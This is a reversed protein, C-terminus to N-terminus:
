DHSDAERQVPFANMYYSFQRYLDERRIGFQGELDYRVKGARGRPHTAIYHEIAARSAPDLGIGALEHIEALIALDNAMFDQFQVHRTREEPLVAVDRVLGQLLSDQISRAHAAIDELDVPEMRMRASYATLNIWSTFISVPDRHTVVYTADPFTETLEPLFALHQPSKLVWRRPGRLWQLAKLVRKLFQYHELRRNALYWDFWGPVHVVTACLMSGFDLWQLEVEEHISEVQLDHMSSFLPMIANVNELQAACNHRRQDAVEGLRAARSPIPELSEWYRLSRLRTDAAILNLMNTTGSRPLGAIILPRKIEVQDIEPYAAYLAELRSRQVLATVIFNLTTMRGMPSLNKVGNVSDIYFGMRRLFGPEEYLPADCQSRASSIVAESSIELPLEAVAALIERAQPTHRPETLDDLIIAGPM